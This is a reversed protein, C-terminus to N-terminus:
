CYNSPPSIQCLGLSSKLCYTSCICYLIILAHSKTYIAKLVVYCCLNIKCYKKYCVASYVWPPSRHLCQLSPRLYLKLALTYSLLIYTTFYNSTNFIGNIHFYSICVSNYLPFRQAPPLKSFLLPVLNVFGKLLWGKCKCCSSDPWCCTICFILLM